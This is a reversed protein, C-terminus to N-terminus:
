KNAGQQKQKGAKVKLSAARKSRMSALVRGLDSSGDIKQGAVEKLMPDETVIEGQVRYTHTPTAVDSDEPRAWKKVPRSSQKSLMARLAQKTNVIDKPRRPRSPEKENDRTDALIESLVSEQVCYLAHEIVTPVANSLMQGTLCARSLHPPTPLTTRARTHTHTDCLCCVVRENLLYFLYLFVLSFFSFIVFLFLLLVLVLPTHSVDLPQGDLEKVAAAFLAADDDDAPETAAPETAADIIKIVPEEAKAEAAPEDAKATAAPEKATAKITLEDAKAEAAPEDAKAAAAPEKATAEIIPKDAKVEAVPEDAKADAVPDDAKAEAVPVDAKAEAAPKDPAAEAVPEDTKPEAAPEDTTVEAVPEDAKATDDAPSDAKAEADSEDLIAVAAPGDASVAAKAEVAFEVGRSVATDPEDATVEATAADNEDHNDETKDPPTVINGDADLMNNDADLKCM